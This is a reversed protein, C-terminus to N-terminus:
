KTKTNNNVDKKVENDKDIKEITKMVIKELEKM